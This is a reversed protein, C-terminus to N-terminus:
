RSRIPVLRPVYTVHNCAEALEVTAGCVQCQQYGHQKISKRFEEEAEDKKCMHNQSGDSMLHKCETCTSKRCASDGCVAYKVNTELDATHTSPHLFQGCSTNACYVRFRFVETETNTFLTSTSM